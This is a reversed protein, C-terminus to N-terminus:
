RHKQFGQFHQMNMAWQRTAVDGRHTTGPAFCREHRIGDAGPIQAKGRKGALLRLAYRVRQWFERRDGIRQIVVIKAPVVLRRASRAKTVAARWHVAWAATTEVSGSLKGSCRAWCSSSAPITGSHPSSSASAAISAAACSPSYRRVARSGKAGGEETPLAARPVRGSGSDLRRKARNPRLTGAPAGALVASSAIAAARAM